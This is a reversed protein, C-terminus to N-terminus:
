DGTPPTLVYSIALRAKRSSSIDKVAREVSAEQDKRYVATVDLTKHLMAKSDLPLTHSPREYGESM